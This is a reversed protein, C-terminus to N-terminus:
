IVADQQSLAAWGAPDAHIRGIVSAAAGLAAAGIGARSARVSPPAWAASIVHGALEHEIAPALWEALPAYIGGLVVTGLDLLNVAAALAIGLATGADALADLVLGDGAEAREILETLDPIGPVGIESREVESRYTAMGAKEAAMRAAAAAAAGVWGPGVAGMGAARLIAEQGAVTELCGLAGCRCREGGPRVTAHGIEGGWGRAGPYVQRGLVIGAGIGIEGSLYLFDTLERGTDLHLEGEAAYDAENGVLLPLPADPLGPTLLGRTDIERWGLNPARLITGTASDVLGPVTVCVGALELGDKAGCVTVREALAALAAFVEAPSRDRLDAHVLERCRVTGALDLVCAALYDVNVELGLGAPGSAAPVLGTAPRGAGAAPPPGVEEILGLMLLSDALSAATARTLGTRAALAARSLPADAAVILGLVLALNRDRLSRQRAPAPSQDTGPTRTM